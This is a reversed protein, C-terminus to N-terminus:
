LWDTDAGSETDDLNLDSTSPTPQESEDYPSSELNDINVALKKAADELCIVWRGRHKFCKLGKSKDGKNYLRSLHRVHFVSYEFQLAVDEAYAYRVGDIIGSM